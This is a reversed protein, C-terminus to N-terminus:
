GFRTQGLLAPQGELTVPIPRRREFKEDLHKWTHVSEEVHADVDFTTSPANM